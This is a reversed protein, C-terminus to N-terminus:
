ISFFGSKIGESSSIRTWFVALKKAHSSVPNDWHPRIKQTSTWTFSVDEGTRMRGGSDSGEGESHFDYISPHSRDLGNLRRPESLRSDLSCAKNMRLSSYTLPWQRGQSTKVHQSACFTCHRVFIHLSSLSTKCHYFPWWIRERVFHFNKEPKQTFLWLSINWDM